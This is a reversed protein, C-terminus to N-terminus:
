PADDEVLVALVDEEKMFIRKEGDNEFESGSYKGFIVKDGAKLRPEIRSGNDLIRGPGVALVVGRTVPEKATDPIVISGIKTESEDRKVLVRDQLPIIKM